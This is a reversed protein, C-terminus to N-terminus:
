EHNVVRLMRDHGAMDQRVTVTARPIAKEFIARLAAAQHYGFELYLKGGAALHPAVTAALREYLALGHNAAFLAGHPEYNLVSADMVPEEAHDIYPPNSVIVDFRTAPVSALLDSQYFDVALGLTRANQRAVTLAGDAVDSGEIQWDPREHKLALAIAGSGTGVDLVNCASTAPADSLVWDVLEETEVRPILVNSNVTLELGYFPARGLVYQAPEGAAVRKVMAQYTTSLATPMTDRYHVLLQTQDFHTLGLLLFRANDSPVRATKLCFSAWQQAEFYTPASNTM